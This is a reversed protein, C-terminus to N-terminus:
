TGAYKKRLAELQDMIEPAEKLAALPTLHKRIYRWDLQDVGQRVITFRVDRWDQERGAFVKMVILDEPTCLRLTIGPYVEVARARRVAAEEFPLAGMAIDVGIGAKSRLLLVRNVLAFARADPRRPAFHTLLLDIFTEESGFGTLLTLDVDKTYRPESWSQVALGGIFCFSWQQEEFIRQLDAALSILENLPIRPTEPVM